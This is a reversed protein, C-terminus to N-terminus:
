ILLGRVIQPPVVVNCYRMFDELTRWLNNIDSFKDTPVPIAWKTGYGERYLHLHPSPIETEDPNRHPAGGFDLRALVVVSRARNQYRGKLEISGSRWVDLNFSERKDESSLPLTLSGGTSPYDYEQVNTRVKKMALLRDAEVQTLNIEAM